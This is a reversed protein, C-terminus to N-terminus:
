RPVPKGYVEIWDCNSPMGGIGHGGGRTLDTFGVEDVKTLDLSVRFGAADTPGKDASGVVREPDLRKWRPVDVLFFENERFDRSSAEVIDGVFMDGDALKVVPRMQTLGRPRVRWRLRGLGSLDLYYRKDRVTLAWTAETAGTWVWTMPNGTVADIASDLQLGSEHTPKSMAGPGYFKLEHNPDSVDTPMLNRQGFPPKRFWRMEPTDPEPMGSTGTFYGDKNVSNFSERLVLSLPMPPAGGRGGQPPQARLGPVGLSVVATLLILVSRRM